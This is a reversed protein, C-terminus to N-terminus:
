VWKLSASLSWSWSYSGYRGPPASSVGRPSPQLLGPGPEEKVGPARWGSDTARAREPFIGEPKGSNMQWAATGPAWGSWWCGVVRGLPSHFHSLSTLLMWRWVEVELEWVCNHHDAKARTKMESLTTKFAELFSRFSFTQARCSETEVSLFDWCVKRCCNSTWTM